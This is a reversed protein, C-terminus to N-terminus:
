PVLLFLHLVSSYWLMFGNYSWPMFPLPYTTASGTLAAATVSPNDLLLKPHLHFLVAVILCHFAFQPIFFKEEKQEKVIQIGEKPWLWFALLLPVSHFPNLPLWLGFSNGLKITLYKVKLILQYKPCWQAIRTM